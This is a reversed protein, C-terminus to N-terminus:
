KIMDDLKLMDSYKSPHFGLISKQHHTRAMTTGGSFTSSEDTGGRVRPPVFVGALTPAMTATAVTASTPMNVKITGGPSTATVTGDPATVRSMGGPSTAITGQGPHYPCPLQFFINAQLAAASTPSLPPMMTVLNTTVM